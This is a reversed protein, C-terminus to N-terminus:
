LLKTNFSERPIKPDHKRSPTLSHGQVREKEPCRAEPRSFCVSMKEDGGLGISATV